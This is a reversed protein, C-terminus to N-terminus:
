SSGQRALRVRETINAHSIMFGSGDRLKAAHLVFWAEVGPGHCPYEYTWLERAGNLLERLPREVEPTDRCAELYNAGPGLRAGATGGNRAAFQRWALNTARIVGHEDLVCIHEPLADLISQLHTRERELTRVSTLDLIHTIVGRARGDRSVQPAAQVLVWRGDSTRVERAVVERSQLVDQFVSSPDFDVFTHRIDGVPREVDRPLLSFSDQVASTFRRVNLDADVVLIGLPSSQFLNDLDANLRSLERIREQSESNVTSLEENISQLEENTSQLEENSAQLEENTTQLEENSSELEEITDQLTERAFALETRLQVLQRQAEDESQVVEVGALTPVIPEFSVVLLRGERFPFPQARVARVAEHQCNMVVTADTDLARHVVMSTVARLREPLMALLALSVAGMPVSLLQSGNGFVNLVELQANVLVSAPALSEVLLRMAIEAADAGPEETSRARRAPPAAHLVGSTRSVETREYLKARGDLARFLPLGEGSTESQGLLLLGGRRLGHAFASLVRQQSPAALYIFLNRCTVLHLRMFPPDRVVNHTAFTIKRRLDRDVEWATGRVRFFRARREPSLKALDTESYVGAAAVALAEGDVDTAFIKYERGPMREELLMALTYAEQGTACGASWIRLSETHQAALQELHDGLANWVADDRFFETVNILLEQVLRQAEGDDHLVLQSYTAFDPHSGITMRRAIRRLVTPQKYQFFDISSVQKLRELLGELLAPDGPARLVERVLSDADGQVL